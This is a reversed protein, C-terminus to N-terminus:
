MLQRYVSPARGECDTDTLEATYTFVDDDDDDDDDNNCIDMAGMKLTSPKNEWCAFPALRPTPALSLPQKSLSQLDLNLQTSRRKAADICANPLDCSGLQLCCWLVTRACRLSSTLEALASALALVDTCMIIGCDILRYTFYTLTMIEVTAFIGSEVSCTYVCLCTYSVSFVFILLCM